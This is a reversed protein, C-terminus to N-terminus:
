RDERAPSSALARVQQAFQDLPMPARTGRAITAAAGTSIPPPPVVVRVGTREDIRVRYVGQSFGVLYPLARGSAAFFLVVEEGTSFSPAGVMMTKYAGVTGGPVRFSVTRGMNGKVYGLAEATILTDVRLRDDSVLPRVDTIRAYVIAGASVALENLDAPVIVTARLTAMAALVLLALTLRIRM